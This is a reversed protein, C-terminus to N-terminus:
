RAPEYGMLKYSDVPKGAMHAFNQAAYLHTIKKKSKEIRPACAVGLYFINGKQNDLSDSEKGGPHRLLNSRHGRSKMWRSIVDKAWSAYTHRGISLTALNEAVGGFMDIGYKQMREGPGILMDASDGPRPKTYHNLYHRRGMDTSHDYAAAELAPSYQLEPIKHNARIRNTEFFIAANLLPLDLNAQDITENM